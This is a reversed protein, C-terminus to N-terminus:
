RGQPLQLQEQSSLQPQEQNAHRSIKISTPLGDASWNIDWIEANNYAPLAKRRTLYVILGILAAIILIFTDQKKM